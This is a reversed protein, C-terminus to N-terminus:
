EAMIRVMKDDRLKHACRSFGKTVHNVCNGHSKERVLKHDM